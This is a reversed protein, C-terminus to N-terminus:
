ADVEAPDLVVEENMWAPKKAPRKARAQEVAASM